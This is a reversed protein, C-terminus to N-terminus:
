QVRHHIPSRTAIEDAIRSNEPRYEPIRNKVGVLFRTASFLGNTTAITSGKVWAGHQDGHCGAGNACGMGQDVARLDGPNIFALYEYPTFTKGPLSLTVTSSTM